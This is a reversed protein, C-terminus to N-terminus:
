NVSDFTPNDSIDIGFGTVSKALAWIDPPNLVFAEPATTKLTQALGCMIKQRAASGVPVTDMKAELANYQPNDYGINHLTTAPTYHSYQVSADMQPAADLRWAFFDGRQAPTGAFDTFYTADPQVVIKVKLGVQGLEQEIAQALETDDVLFGSSSDFTLTTGAPIHAAAILAKAKAPDYPYPSVSPCYGTVTSTPLQSAVTGMGGLISSILLKRNIAYNIAERVNQNALPGTKAYMDFMYPGPEIASTVTDGAAKVTSIQDTPVSDIMDVAGSQLASVRSADSAIVTFVLQKAKPTGELSGPNRELVVKENPTFGAIKWAGTAVPNAFFKAAGEKTFAKPPVIALASLGQPLVSDPQSTHFQVVTPSIAKVSTVPGLLTSANEAHKPDQVYKVAFVVAAANLPEGDPFKLNPKLTFRWDHPDTQKFSTALDPVVTAQGNSGRGIRDLESYLAFVFYSRPPTAGVWPNLDPTLAGLGITEVKGPASAPSTKGSTTSKSHGKSGSSGCATVALALCAALVIALLRDPRQHHTMNHETTSQSGLPHNHFAQSAHRRSTM